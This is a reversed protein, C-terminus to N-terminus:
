PNCTGAGPFGSRGLPSRTPRPSPLCVLPLNWALPGDAEKDAARPSGSSLLVPAALVSRLTSWGGGASVPHPPSGMSAALTGLPFWPAQLVACFPGGTLAPIEARHQALLGPQPGEGLGPCGRLCAPSRAPSRQSRAPLCRPPAGGSCPPPRREAGLVRLVCCVACPM